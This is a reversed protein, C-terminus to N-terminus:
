SSISHGFSGLLVEQDKIKSHLKWTSRAQEYSRTQWIKAERLQEYLYEHMNRAVKARAKSDVIFVATLIPVLIVDFICARTRTKNWVEIKLFSHKTSGNWILRMLTLEYEPELVSQMFEYIVGRCRKWSNEVWQPDSEV